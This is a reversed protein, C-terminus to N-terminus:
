MGKLNGLIEILANHFPTDDCADVVENVLQNTKRCLEKEKEDAETTKGRHEELKLKKLRSCKEKMLNNREDELRLQRKKLEILNASLSSIKDLKQQEVEQLKEPSM